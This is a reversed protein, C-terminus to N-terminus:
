NVLHFWVIGDGLEKVGGFDYKTCIIKNIVSYKNYKKLSKAKGICKSKSTSSKMDILTESKNEM